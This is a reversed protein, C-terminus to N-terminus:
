DRGIDKSDQKCGARTAMGGLPRQVESLHQVQELWWLEVQHSAEHRRAVKMDRPSGQDGSTKNGKVLMKLYEFFRLVLSGFFQFKFWFFRLIVLVFALFVYPFNVFILLIDVIVLEFLLDFTHYYLYNFNNSPVISDSLQVMM